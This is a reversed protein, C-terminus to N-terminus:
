CCLLGPKVVVLSVKRKRTHVTLLGSSKKTTVWAAEDLVVALVVVQHKCEAVSCEVLSSVPVSINSPSSDTVVLDVTCERLRYTYKLPRTAHDFEPEFEGLQEDLKPFLKRAQFLALPQIKSHVACHHQRQAM